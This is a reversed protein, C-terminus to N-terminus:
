LEYLTLETLHQMSEILEKQAVLITHVVEPLIENWENDSFPPRDYEEFNVAAYLREYPTM